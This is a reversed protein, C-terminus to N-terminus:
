PKDVHIPINSFKEGKAPDIFQIYVRTGTEPHAMVRHHKAMMKTSFGNLALGKILSFFRDLAKGYPIGKNAKNALVNFEVDTKVMRLTYLGKEEKKRAM